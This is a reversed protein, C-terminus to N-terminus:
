LAEVIAKIEEPSEAFGLQFSEVLGAFDNAPEASQILALPTTASPAPQGSNESAFPQTINQLCEVPSCLALWFSAQVQM